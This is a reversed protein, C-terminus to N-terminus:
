AVREIEKIKYVIARCVVSAIADSESWAEVETEVVGYYGDYVIRYIDKLPNIKVRKM